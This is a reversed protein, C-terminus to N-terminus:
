ELGFLPAITAGRKKQDTSDSSSYLRWHHDSWRIGFAVHQRKEYQQHHNEPESLRHDQLAEEGEEPIQAYEEVGHPETKGLAELVALQRQPIVLNTHAKRQQAIQLGSREIYRM